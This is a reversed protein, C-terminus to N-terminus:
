LGLVYMKLQVHDNLTQDDIILRDISADTFGSPPQLMLASKSFQGEALVTQIFSTVDFSYQTNQGYLHDVILSGTQPQQGTADTLISTPRNEDDTIYMYLAAPLRYPYKYTAPDPKILVEAKLVKIYPHTEKLSLLTPFSIKIYSGMNSNLYAKHGTLESTKVATKGTAFAALNTGNHHYLISNFQKDTNFPFDIYKDQPIAGKLTYHLRVLGTSDSRFYYLAKSSVSDSRLCLGKLYRNFMAQNQITDDNEQLKNLLDQGLATSLRIKVVKGANPRITITTQGLPVPDFSFRRLNYFSNNGEEENEINEQLRHVSMQFPVLTDGYYNGNPNLMLVLSDFTVNQDYVGNVPIQLEAYSGAHITGFEPDTHHGVTFVSDGTTAFSDVKYTSLTVPYNTYVAINPDDDISDDDFPLEVKNCSALTGLALCSIFSSIFFNYRSFFIRNM